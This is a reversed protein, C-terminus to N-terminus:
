DPNYNYEDFFSKYINKIMISNGNIDLVDVTKISKNLKNIIDKRDTSKLTFVGVRNNSSMESGVLTDKKKYVNVYEILKNNILENVGVITNFVAPKTYIYNDFYIYNPISFDINQPILLFSNISADIIDFNTLERIIRYNEGGGIRPAFEIVSICDDKLIAQIMLPTNDLGFISAIKNAIEKISKLNDDTLEAPWFSGYIQQTSINDDLIKIRERTMIIKADGNKIYCDVGIEKGDLYEEIIIKKNRSIAFAHKAYENLEISNDAKRVGKSSNSDSPKVILPYKLNINYLMTLNDVEVYNSTPIGGEVMHKKMSVKNSIIRAIKYSYPHPLNLKEAVYCATVNAQDVCSSIILETNRKKAIQLVLDKNLTSEIIHEDAYEKATPNDLYDILITYYCRKKLNNILEIHPFTGGLIIAVPKNTKNEM